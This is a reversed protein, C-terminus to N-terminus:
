TSQGDRARIRVTDGDVAASAVDWNARVTLAFAGTAGIAHELDPHDDRATM